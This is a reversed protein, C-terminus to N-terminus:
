GGFTLDLVAGPDASRLPGAGFWGAREVAPRASDDVPTVVATRDAVAVGHGLPELHWRLRALEREPAGARAAIRETAGIREALAAAYPVLRQEWLQQVQEQLDAVTGSNDLVVDAIALRQEDSAQARIRAEADDRDMGRSETLRELRIRDPTMVVVVLHFSPAMSGEALLPIDNVIVADPGAQEILEVSRARVLPHVIQNLQQRATEDAFVVQALAPRDLAGDEALVGEGFTEVIRRLGDTGPEVVERSIKDADVVTAGLASLASSAASKGSGIGGTLGLNLM